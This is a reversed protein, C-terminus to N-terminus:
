SSADSSLAYSAPQGWASQRPWKPTMPQASHLHKLIPNRLRVAEVNVEKRGTHLIQWLLEPEIGKM